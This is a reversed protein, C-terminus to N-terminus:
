LNKYHFWHFLPLPSETNDDYIQTADIWLLLEIMLVDCISVELIKLNKVYINWQFGSFVSFFFLLILISSKERYKWPKFAFREM